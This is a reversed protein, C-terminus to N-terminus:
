NAGLTSGGSPIQYLFTRVAELLLMGNVKPVDDLIPEKNWKTLPDGQRDQLMGLQQAAAGAM